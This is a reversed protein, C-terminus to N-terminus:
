ALSKNFFSQLKDWPILDVRDYLDVHGAGPVIFLEKPDVALKYADESFYRSHAKEGAVLLVPRPSVTDLHEFPRFQFFSGDSTLSIATTSRPHRGRPMRYYEFFERTVPDTSQDITEPLATYRVEGGPSTVKFFGEGRIAVDYERETNEPEGQTFVKVTSAARVGSGIELGNPTPTGAGVEGGPERLKVYILDQFDVQSRKFGATNINALNNAIVDVITQQATMGTAATSFARLM